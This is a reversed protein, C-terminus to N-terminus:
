YQDYRRVWAMSFDLGDEDRGKSGLHLYHYAGNLMETGRAYCSYTHFGRREREEAGIRWEGYNYYGKGAAVEKATFTVHYDFNFDSGYCSVWPFSWGM